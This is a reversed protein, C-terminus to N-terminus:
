HSPWSRATRGISVSSFPPSSSILMRCWFPFCSPYSVLSDSANLDCVLTYLDRVFDEKSPQVDVVEDRLAGDKLAETIEHMAGPTKDIVDVVAKKLKAEYELIDKQRLLADARRKFVSTPRLDQDKPLFSHDELVKFLTLCDRAELALDNPLNQAHDSLLSIPHLFTM